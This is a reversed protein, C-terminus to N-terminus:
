QQCQLSARDLPTIHSILVVFFFVFAYRDVYFGITPWFTKNTDNYFFLDNIGIITHKLDNTVWDPLETFFM